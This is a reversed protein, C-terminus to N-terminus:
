KEKRRRMAYIEAATSTAKSKDIRRETEPSLKNDIEPGQRAILVDFLDDAVEKVSM